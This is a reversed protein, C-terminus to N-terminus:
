GVEEWRGALGYIAADALSLIDSCRHRGNHGFKCGGSQGEALSTNFVGTDAMPRSGPATCDPRAPATVPLRALLRPRLWWAM